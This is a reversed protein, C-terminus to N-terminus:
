VHLVERAELDASERQYVYFWIEAEDEKGDELLQDIVAQQAPTPTYGTM